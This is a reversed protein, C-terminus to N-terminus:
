SLNGAARVWQISQDLKAGPDADYSQELPAPPAVGGGGAGDHAPVSVGFMAIEGKPGEARIYAIGTQTVHWGAPLMVTATGDALSYKTLPQITVTPGPPPADKTTDKAADAAWAGGPMAILAALMLTRRSATQFRSMFAKRRNSSLPGSNSARRDIEPFPKEQVPHM